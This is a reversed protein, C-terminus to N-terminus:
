KQNGAIHTAAWKGKVSKVLLKLCEPCYTKKNTHTNRKVLLTNVHISCFWTSPKGKKIYGTHLDKLGM